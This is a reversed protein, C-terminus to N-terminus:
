YTQLFYFPTTSIQDFSSWLTFSNQSDYILWQSFVKLTYISFILYVLYNSKKLTKYAVIWFYLSTFPTWLRYAAAANNNILYMSMLYSFVILFKISTQKINTNSAGCLSFAICIIYSYFALQLHNFILRIGDDNSITYASTKENLFVNDKFILYGIFILSVFFLSLKIKKKLDFNENLLIVLPLLAITSTSHIATSIALYLILKKPQSEYIAAILFPIALFQRILQTSLLPQSYFIITILCLARITRSKDNILKSTIYFFVSLSIFSYSFMLGAPTLEGNINKILLLISWAGIEIGGSILLLNDISLEKYTYYYQTFDDSATSNYKRSSFIVAALFAFTLIFLAENRNNFFFSHFLYYIILLLLGLIPSYGAICFSICIAILQYFLFKNPAYNNITNKQM